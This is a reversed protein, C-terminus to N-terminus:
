GRAAAGDAHCAPSPLRAPFLRRHAGLPWPVPATRGGPISACYVEPALRRNLGVEQDCFFKRSELTTFDLFGFDVPRKGKYVFCETFFLWSIHTQRMSVRFTRDPDAEPCSLAAIVAHPEM